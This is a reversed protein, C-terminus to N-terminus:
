TNTSWVFLNITLENSTSYASIVCTSKEYCRETAIILEKNDKIKFAIEDKDIWYLIVSFVGVLIEIGVYDYSSIYLLLVNISM